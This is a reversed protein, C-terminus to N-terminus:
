RSERQLWLPFPMDREFEGICRWQRGLNVRIFAYRLHQEILRVLLTFHRVLLATSLIHALSPHGRWLGLKGSASAAELLRRLSQGCRLVQAFALRRWIERRPAITKQRM